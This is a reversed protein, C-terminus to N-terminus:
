WYDFFQKSQEISEFNKTTKLHYERVENEETSFFQKKHGFRIHGFSQTNDKSQLVQLVVFFYEEKSNNILLSTLPSGNEEYVKVDQITYKTDEFTCSPDVQTLDFAVELKPYEKRKGYHYHQMYDM